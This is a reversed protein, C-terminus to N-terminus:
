AVKVVKVIEGSFDAVYLNGSGDFTLDLPAGGSLFESQATVASGTENLEVRVVKHGVVEDGFINGFEAVFLDNRFADGWANTRQFALGDASVHLGFTAMPRPVSSKPCSGFAAIVDPNPSDYPELNGQRELNYLCSPFGFDDIRPIFRSTRRSSRRPDDIDTAYLLDDSAELQGEGGTQGQRADDVGNTTIFLKTADFPSFAIDFDNRMGHAILANTTTLTTLSINTAQPHVKIVSGSWPEVEPDGGDIGDDTSNGNTVYLMGDPGFAMGNTNHRGNPLDKLVIEKIDGADMADGDSNTDRLRWVRGYQRTGFPGAREAEADSVYVTGDSAVLVGLPNRFGTAFPFPGSGVGSNDDITVVQGDSFRAVYLRARALNRTDPGFALSTTLGGATAYHTVAFGVPVSPPTQARSPLAVSVALNALVLLSLFAAFRKM